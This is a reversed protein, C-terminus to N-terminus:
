KGELFAIIAMLRKKYNKYFRPMNYNMFMKEFHRKEEELEKKALELATKNKCGQRPTRRSTKLKTNAGAAVLLKVIEVNGDMAAIHLPTFSEKDRADILAGHKLLLRIIQPINRNRKKEQEDEYKESGCMHRDICAALHLSSMGRNPNNVRAGRTLLLEVIESDSFSIAFELPTRSIGWEEFEEGLQVEINAGADLLIKVIKINGYAIALLLPTENFAGDVYAGRALLEKILTIQVDSEPSYQVAYYLPTRGQWKNALNVKAGYSLLVHALEFKSNLAALCLPTLEEEEDCANIDVGQALLKKTLDIDGKLVAKHLDTVGRYYEYCMPFTTNTEKASMPSQQALTIFGVAHVIKIIKM